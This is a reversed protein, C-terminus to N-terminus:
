VRATKIVAEGRPPAASQGTPQMMPQNGVVAAIGRGRQGNGGAHRQKGHQSRHRLAMAAKSRGSVGGLQVQGAAVERSRRVVNVM